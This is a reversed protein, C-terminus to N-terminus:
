KVIKKGGVIYVGRSLGDLNEAKPSVMRGNLDYVKTQTPDLNVERIGTTLDKLSIENCNVVYIDEYNSGTFPKSLFAVVRMNDVNYAGDITTLGDLSLSYHKEYRDGNWEVRDGWIESINTRIVAPHHYNEPDEAGNQYGIIDDEVLLVTLNTWQEVPLFDENREGSVTLNLVHSEEDYYGAFNVNAFAPQAKAEDVDENMIHNRNNYPTKEVCRNLDVNPFGDVYMMSLYSESAPCMWYTGRSHISVVALDGREQKKKEVLQDFEPCYGCWYGTYVQVLVKQRGMDHEYVKMPTKMPVAEGKYEEGNFSKPVVSLEYCGVPTGEPITVRLPIDWQGVGNIKAYHYLPSYELGMGGMQVRMEYNYIPMSGWNRLRLSINCSEGAKIVKKYVPEVLEEFHVDYKPVNDGEVLCQIFWTGEGTSWKGERFLIYGGEELGAYPDWKVPYLGDEESMHYSVGVFINDGTITYPKDLTVENWGEHLDAVSQCALDYKDKSTGIFVKVDSLHSFREWMNFRIRTIKNGKIRGMREKPFSVVQIVDDPSLGGSSGGEYLGDTYSLILRRSNLDDFPSSPNEVDPMDEEVISAFKGWVLHDQFYIKRGTPVHLTASQYTTDDFFNEWIDFPSAQRMIIENLSSCGRFVEGGSTTINSRFTVSSLSTCNQFVYSGIYNVSDPIIISKLSTCDAFLNSNITKVHSSIVASVLSSCEQFVYGGVYTVNDPITISSLAACGFFAHNDIKKLSNPFSVSTLKSCNWFAFVGISTVDYAVDKYAVTEPIAIDGEYMQDGKWQIVEATNAAADLNYWLGGIEVEEAYLALPLIMLIWIFFHKKM